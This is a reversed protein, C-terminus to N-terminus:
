TYTGDTVGPVTVATEAESVGYTGRQNAPFMINAAMVIRASLYSCTLVASASLSVATPAPTDSGYGALYGSPHVTRHATGSMSAGAAMSLSGSVTSM